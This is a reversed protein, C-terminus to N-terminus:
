PSLLLAIPFIRVKTSCRPRVLGRRPEPRSCAWSPTFVPRTYGDPVLYPYHLYGNKRIRIRTNKYEPRIRTIGPYQLKPNPDSVSRTSGPLCGFIWTPYPYGSNPYGNKWKRCLLITIFDYVKVYSIPHFYLKYSFQLARLSRYSQLV